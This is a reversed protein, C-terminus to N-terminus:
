EARLDPNSLKIMLHPRVFVERDQVHLVWILQRLQPSGYLKAHTFRFSSHVDSITADQGSKPDWYQSFYAKRGHCSKYYRVAVAVHNSTLNQGKVAGSSSGTKATVPSRWTLLRQAAGQASVSERLVTIQLGM